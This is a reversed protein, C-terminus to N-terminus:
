NTSRSSIVQYQIFAQHLEEVQKNPLPKTLHINGIEAGIHPSLPEVIISEYPM